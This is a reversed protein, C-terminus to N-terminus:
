WRGDSEDNWFYSISFNDYLLFSVGDEGKVNGLQVSQPYGVHNYGQYKYMNSVELNYLTFTHEGLKLSLKEFNKGNCWKVWRDIQESIIGKEYIVEKM